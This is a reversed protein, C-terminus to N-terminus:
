NVHKNTTFNFRRKKFDLPLFRMIKLVQAHVSGYRVMPLIKPM